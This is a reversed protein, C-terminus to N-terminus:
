AQMAGDVGLVQGTVYSSAPAALFLAAGAVDQVTGFRGMGIDSLATARADGEIGATLDTEIFGPALANVRVGHPAMEKAMARTMGVVAAKTAAYASFGAAGQVGMISALNIISGSKKASMLRAALQACLFAGKINTQMMADLDTERTMAILGGHMIGANNVLVDLQGAQKRLTSMAAKVSAADSVDLVVAQAGPVRDAVAQARDLDRGAIWVQAGAEAMLAAIGAGIGRSAGTVLVTKGSLDFIDSVSM